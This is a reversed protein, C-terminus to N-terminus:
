LQELRDVIRALTRPGVGPAKSDFSPPRSPDVLPWIEDGVLRRAGAPDAAADVRHREALASQALRALLPRAGHDYHWQSVPAWGLDSSIKAYTPFDGAQVVPPRDARRLLGARALWARVSGPRRAPREAASRPTRALVIVLGVVALCDGAVVLGLPGTVLFTSALTLVVVVIVVGARLATRLRM